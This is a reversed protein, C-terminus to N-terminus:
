IAQGPLNPLPQKSEIQARRQRLISKFQSLAADYATLADSQSQTLAAPQGAAPSIFRINNFKVRVLATDLITDVAECVPPMFFLCLALAPAALPRLM